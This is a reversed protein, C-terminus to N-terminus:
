PKSTSTAVARVIPPNGTMEFAVTTTRSACCLPDTAAYRLYEATLRRDGQLYVRALAGDTRSDMTRPSLTGAFVGRVFVFEQYQLPRCMGDYSTTGGIVLIQWGGQYAGVLDWGRDRVRKDEALQPPRAQGRCRPDAGQIKPAAPVSLGHKNWQSPTPQDLWATNRQQSGGTAPHMVAIAITVATIRLLHTTM